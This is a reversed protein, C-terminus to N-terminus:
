KEDQVEENRSEAELEKVIGAHVEETLGYFFMPVMALAFAVAVVLTMMMHFALLTTGTQVQGPTYGTVTLILGILGGSLALCLKSVFTQTSSILGERRQGTKWQAYEITDAIMASELVLIFGFSVGTLAIMIFVRVTDTDDSFFFLLNSIMGYICAGLYVRKKGFKKALVPALLMGALMGPISLATLISVLSLAGLNYQAFYPLTSNRLGNATLIILVSLIILLLPKNCALVKLSNGVGEKKQKVPEVHERISGFGILYFFISFAAFLVATRFFGKEQDGAGLRQTLPIIIVASVVSTLTTATRAISFIGARRGSDRTMASPLSWYPIDVATFAMSLLVYTIAAYAVKAGGSLAPTYFNLILLIGVPVAMFLLWPRYRGWRTRTRDAVMGMMPDNVADWIRTFMMILGAAGATIGFVDTYFILIYSGWLGYVLNQGIGAAAHGAIERTKVMSKLSGDKEAM